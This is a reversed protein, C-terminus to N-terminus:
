ISARFLGLAARNKVSSLNEGDRGALPSALQLRIWHLSGFDCPESGDHQWDARLTCKSDYRGGGDM